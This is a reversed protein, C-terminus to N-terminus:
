AIPLLGAHSVNLKVVPWNSPCARGVRVDARVAFMRMVTDSPVDDAVSGANEIVTVADDLTFVGGFIEPEGAVDTFSPM